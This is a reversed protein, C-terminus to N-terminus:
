RTKKGFNILNLCDMLIGDESMKDWIALIFIECVLILWYYYSNLIGFFDLIYYWGLFYFPPIVFALFFIALICVLLLHIADIFTEKIVGKLGKM